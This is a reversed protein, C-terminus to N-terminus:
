DLISLRSNTLNGVLYSHDLILPVIWYYTIPSRGIHVPPALWQDYFTLYSGMLSDILFSFFFVGSFKAQHQQVL